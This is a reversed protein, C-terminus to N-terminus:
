ALLLARGPFGDRVLRRWEDVPVVFVDPQNLADPELEIDAPSAIAQGVPNRGLFERLVVLLLAVAEQHVPTPSPTVLLEGDVLEYRPTVRPNAAILDRVERATWRRRIEAPMAMIQEASTTSPLPADAARPSSIRGC